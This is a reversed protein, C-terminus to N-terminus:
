PLEIDMVEGVDIGLSAAKKLFERAARAQAYDIMTGEYKVAADGRALAEAMAAMKGRARQIEEPSPSYVENLIPIHSPHIAMSGTAGMRRARIALRRGHALDDIRTPMGGWVQALGAARAQLVSHADFYLGEDGSENVTIGLARTSDGDNSVGGILGARKVRGSATIIDYLKYMAFATEALPAIEICEFGLNRSVELERLVLDLAGVDVAQEAKPLMVGDIGERVVALLDDLVLGTRWSNVRVFRGFSGGKLQDIAKAVSERANEKESGPVSDELDFILADAGYKPAKLMWELKHGPVFLM